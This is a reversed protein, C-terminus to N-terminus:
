SNLLGSRTASGGARGCRQGAARLSRSPLRVGTPRGGQAVKDGVFPITQALAEIASEPAAALARPPLFHRRLVALLPAAATAAGDPWVIAIQRPTTALFDVALLAETMAIPRETLVAAHARLGREAIQRWRDDDTLVGLRLANMLAVSTGSPEAGDYAPKERAILTEHEESSM